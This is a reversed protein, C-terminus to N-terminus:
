QVHIPSNLWTNQERSSRFSDLRCDGISDSQSIPLRDMDAKYESIVLDIIDAISNARYIRCCIMNAVCESAIQQRALLQWV